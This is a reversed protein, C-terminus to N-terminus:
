ADEEVDTLMSEAIEHWEVSSLASNFLDAFMSAHDGMWENALAEYHRKLEKALGYANGNHDEAMDRWYFYEGEDNDIWLKVAWTEYNTWGNYTTDTM